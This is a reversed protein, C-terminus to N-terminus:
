KRYLGGDHRHYFHSNAVPPVLSCPSKQSVAKQGRRDADRGQSRYEKGNGNNILSIRPDVVAYLIDSLASGVLTLFASFMMVTFVMPYDRAVLSLYAVQGMGPISFIIEIVFAGSIAAPLLSAFITIIPILSNRFAHKWVVKGEKLGKARATRIYDQRLVSLVGGRMQRSLYALSGYTLCFVPLILHVARESIIEGIGMKDNVEGVGFTPFFNMGYEPTTLFTIMLTAVWFVPLSYLVFLFITVVRDGWSGKYRASWIGLPIAIIYSLLITIFNLLLTWPMAEKIKSWVPRKDLYSIGFDLHLFNTLWKNYQNNLGYWKISPILTKSPTAKRKMADYSYQLRLAEAHVGALLPASDSVAVINKIYSSVNQDKYELYLKGTNDRIFKGKDYVTSDQKVDLLTYETRKIEAYYKAIEPWDGYM